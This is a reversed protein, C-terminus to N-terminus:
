PFFVVEAQGGPLSSHINDLCKTIKQKEISGAKVQIRTGRFESCQETGIRLM